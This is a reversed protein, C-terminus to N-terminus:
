SMRIATSRSVLWEMFERVQARVVKPQVYVEVFSPFSAYGQLGGIWTPTYYPVYGIFTDRPFLARIEGEVKEMPPLKLVADLPDASLVYTTAPTGFLKRVGEYCYDVQLKDESEM